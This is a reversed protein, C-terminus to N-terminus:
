PRPPLRLMGPNGKERPATPITWVGDESRGDLAHASTKRLAPRHAAVPARVRWLRRRRGRSDELGQAARRRDLIRSRKREQPPTRRMNKVFPPVYVTTARQRVLDVACAAGVARRRGDLPRARRRHRGAAACHRQAQHGRLRARALAAARVKGARAEHEDGTRLGKAEVHRKLWNEAVAAFSDPQVPPPEFAPLGEKIRRIAERAKDRAPEIQARRRHRAHGLGAQRLTARSPPSCAPVKRRCGCTTAACNPTPWSTANGSARCRRWWRDTLVKRRQRRTPETM